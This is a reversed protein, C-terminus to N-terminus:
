QAPLQRDASLGSYVCATALDRLGDARLGPWGWVTSVWKSPIATPGCAAGLIAGTLAAVTDTDGGSRVAQEIGVRVPNLHPNRSVEWRATEIAAAVRKFASIGDLGTGVGGSWGQGVGASCGAALHELEAVVRPPFGDEDILQVGDIELGGLAYEGHELATAIAQDLNIADAWQVGQAAAMVTGRLAHAFSLNLALTLPDVTTLTSMNAVERSCQAGDTAAALAVPVMLAFGFHEVTKETLRTTEERYRAVERLAKAYSVGEQGLRGCGAAVLRKTATPPAIMPDLALSIIRHLGLPVHAPGTEYWAVIRRALAESVEASTLQGTSVVEALCIALQVEAGWEGALFNGRGSMVLEDHPGPAAQLEWPVGLASGCAFATLSGVGALALDAYFRDIRVGEGAVLEAPPNSPESM